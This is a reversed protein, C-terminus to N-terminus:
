EAFFEITGGTIAGTQAPNGRKNSVSAPIAPPQAHPLLRPAAGTRLTQVPLPDINFSKM